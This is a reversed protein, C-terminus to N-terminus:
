LSTGMLALMEVQAACSGIAQQQEEATVGDRGLAIRTTYLLSMSNTEVAFALLANLKDRSM